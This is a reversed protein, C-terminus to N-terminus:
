TPGIESSIGTAAVRGDDIVSGGIGGSVLAGGLSGFPSGASGMSM